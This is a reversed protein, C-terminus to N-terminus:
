RRLGELKSEYEEKGIEGRAYRRKLIEEASPQMESPTRPSGTARQFLLVLLLIVFGWFFWMWGMHWVNWFM